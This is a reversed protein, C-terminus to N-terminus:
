QIKRIRNNNYDAVYVHGQKDAVIGRPDYFSAATGVGDADGTTGSTGALITLVKDKSVKLIRGNADAIYFNNNADISIAQPKGVAYALSDLGGIFTSVMYSKDIKRVSNTGTETIYMNGSVDLAIGSPKNLTANIGSANIYGVGRNGVITTVVGAQTVKRILSNGMDTVLLDGQADIAIGSPSNFTAANGTGNAYGASGNGALTTVVGDASIKRIINNGMDAVFINGGADVALGAPAYFQATAGPGDVYGLTGTGAVTSTVGDPTIKRIVSNYSDSVYVNGAADATVATPHNFLAATGTANVYGAGAGTFTSVTGYPNTGDGTKFQIVDGYGTGGANTAFARVYYTTNPTLGSLHSSFSTFKIKEDQHTDSITPTPNSTSYCVGYATFPVTSNLTVGGTYASTGSAETFVDNTFVTAITTDTSKSKFCASFTTVLVLLLVNILTLTKKM